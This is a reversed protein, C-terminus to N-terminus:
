RQIHHQGQSTIIKNGIMCHLCHKKMCYGSYLQLLAQSDFASEAYIGTLGWRKIVANKEAPLQSLFEVARAKLKENGTKSGYLFILPIVTNILIINIAEKGLSKIKRDSTNGFQYHTDWYDSTKVSFINQLSILNETEIIKRFLGSSVHILSAFQAIRITPFNVPRLRLFKWQNNDIAKLNFKNSLHRYEAKLKTYYIDDIEKDLFGAQGFLLAETQLLNNKHRALCHLPLSRALQEFPEANVSFGFNRALQIYFVEEWSNNYLELLQDIRGTKEQLREVLISSMWAHLIFRDIESIYSQCPIWAKSNMLTTYNKFLEPDFQLVVSPIRSANSRMVPEDANLVVHLIVNDYNYDENHKHKKWDSANVHIEVNGAWLTNGIRIKANVFDPGANHNPEGLSIVEIKEGTDSVMSNRDFLGYKWIHTLFDETM